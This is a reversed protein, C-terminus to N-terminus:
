PITKQSELQQKVDDWLRTLPLSEPFRAEINWMLIVAADLDGKGRYINVLLVYSEVRQPYSQMLARTQREAENWRGQSGLWYAWPLEVDYDGPSLSRAKGFDSEVMQVPLGEALRIQGRYVYGM